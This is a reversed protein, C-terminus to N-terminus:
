APPLAQGPHQKGHWDTTAREDAHSVQYEIETDGVRILDGPQLEHERVAAGNILTGSASGADTLQAKGAALAVRCHVRSVGPDQLRLNAEPGRGIVVAITGVVASRGRDADGGKVVQLLGLM